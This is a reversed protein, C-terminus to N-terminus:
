KSKKPLQKPTGRPKARPEKAVSLQHKALLNEIRLFLKEREHVENERMRQTELALSRVLLNLEEIRTRLERIDSTNQKTLEAQLIFDKVGGLLDKWM